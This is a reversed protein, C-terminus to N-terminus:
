IDKDEYPNYAIHEKPKIYDRMVSEEIKNCIEILNLSLKRNVLHVRMEEDSISKLCDMSCRNITDDSVGMTLYDNTTGHNHLKLEGKEM